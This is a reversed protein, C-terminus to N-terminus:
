NINGPDNDLLMDVDVDVNNEDVVPEVGQLDLERNYETRFEDLYIVYFDILILLFNYIFFPGVLFILLRNM